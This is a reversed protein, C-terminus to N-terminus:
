LYKRELCAHYHTKDVGVGELAGMLQAVKPTLTSPQSEASAIAAFYDSVMQSVSRGSQRAHQKAARVLQDDLRLTLKIRVGAGLHIPPLSIYTQHTRTMLLVLHFNLQSHSGNGELPIDTM